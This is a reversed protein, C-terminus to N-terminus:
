GVTGTKHNHDIRLFRALAPFYRALAYVLGLKLSHDAVFILGLTVLTGAAGAIAFGTIGPLSDDLWHATVAGLLSSVTIALLPKWLGTYPHKLLARTFVIGLPQSIVVSILWGIVVGLLGFEGVLLWVLALRLSSQVVEFMMVRSPLGFGKLLPVAAYRVLGLPSSIALIQIATTTGSWRAGLVHEVLGPAIAALLVCPVILLTATGLLAARFLERVKAATKQLRAYLPFTVSEVVEVIAQYPLFALQSALFFVGLEAVGLQRSIIARLGANAIM